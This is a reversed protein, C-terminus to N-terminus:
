KAALGKLLEDDDKPLAWLSLGFAAQYAAKAEPLRVVALWGGGAKVLRWETGKPADVLDLVLARDGDPL